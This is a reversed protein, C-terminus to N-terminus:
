EKCFFKKPHLRGAALTITVEETPAAASFPRPRALLIHNNSM